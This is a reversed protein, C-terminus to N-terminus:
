YQMCEDHCRSGLAKVFVLDLVEASFWIGNIIGYFLLLLLDTNLM